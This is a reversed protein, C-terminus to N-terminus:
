NRFRSRYVSPTCGHKQRFVKNFVQANNFGADTAIDVIKQDTEALIKVAKELRFNKIFEATTQNTLAKLKANVSTRNLAIEACFERTSFSGNAFHAELISRADDLFKTDIPSCAIEKHYLLPNKSFLEHLHQRQRLLNSIRAKLEEAEFPKAIYDDADQNLGTIRDSSDARATLLVVPIHSSSFNEKLDKLLEFGDKEPMMVDSLVLDPQLAIAKEEGVKGNIAFDLRYDTELVSKLVHQMEVNDEVVLVHPLDADPQSMDQTALLSTNEELVLASEHRQNATEIPISITFTVQDNITNDVTIEGGLVSTIQKSWALGIGHGTATNGSGRYFRDFIQSVEDPDINNGSNSVRLLLQEDTAVTCSVWGGEPTHHYANKLLNNIVISLRKEDCYFEEEKLDFQWNFRVNKEHFLPTFNLKIRVLFDHLNFATKHLTIDGSEMQSVDLVEDIMELLQDTNRIVADFVAQDEAAAQKKYAQLPVRILTLPTRFEHSINAYLTNKVEALKAKQESKLQEIKLHNKLAQKEAEKKISLRRFFLYGIGGFLAFALVLLIIYLQRLSLENEQQLLQLDSLEQEQRLNVIEAQKLSLEYDARIMEVNKISNKAELSDEAAKYKKFALLAKKPNGLQENAEAIGQYVTRLFSPNQSQKSSQLFYQFAADAERYAGQHLLLKGKTLHFQPVSELIQLNYDQITSDFVQQACDFDNEQLYSMIIKVRINSALRPKHKKHNEESLEYYARAAPYDNKLLAIEGLQNYIGALYIWHTTPDIFNNLWEINQLYIKEAKEHNKTLLHLNALIQNTRVMLIENKMEKANELSLLSYRMGKDYEGMNSYGTALSISLDGIKSRYGHTECLALSSELYRMGTEFDGVFINAHGIVNLANQRSLPSGLLDAMALSREFYVKCSDLNSSVAYSISVNSLFSSKAKTNGWRAAKKYFAMITPLADKTSFVTPYLKKHQAEILTASDQAIKLYHIASDLSSTSPEKKRHYEETNKIMQWARGIWKPNGTEQAVRLLKYAQMRAASKGATRLVCATHLLGSKLYDEVYGHAEFWDGCQKFIPQVSDTHVRDFDVKALCYRSRYVGYEYALAQAQKVAQHAYQTATDFHFSSYGESLYLLTNVQTTGTQTELDHKLENLQSRKYSQAFVSCSIFLLLLLVCWNKQSCM